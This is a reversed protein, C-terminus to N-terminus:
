VNTVMSRFNSNMGVSSIFDLSTMKHYGEQVLGAISFTPDLDESVNPAIRYESDILLPDAVWRPPIQNVRACNAFSQDAGEIIEKGDTPTTLMDKIDTTTRFSIKSRSRDGTCGPISM